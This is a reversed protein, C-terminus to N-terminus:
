RFLVQQSVPTASNPNDCQTPSDVRAPTGNVLCSYTIDTITVQFLCNSPPSFCLLRSDARQSLEFCRVTDPYTFLNTENCPESIFFFNSDLLFVNFLFHSAFINQTRQAGTCSLGANCSQNFKDCSDNITNNKAILIQQRFSVSWFV